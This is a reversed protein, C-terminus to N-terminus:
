SASFASISLATAAARRAKRIPETHRLISADARPHRSCLNASKISRSAINKATFKRIQYKDYDQKCDNSDFSLPPVNVM